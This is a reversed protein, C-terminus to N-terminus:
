QADGYVEQAEWEGMHDEEIEQCCQHADDKTEHAHGCEDCEFLIHKISLIGEGDGVGSGDFAMEWERGTELTTVIKGAKRARRLRAAAERRVDEVETTPEVATYSMGNYASFRLSHVPTTSTASPTM